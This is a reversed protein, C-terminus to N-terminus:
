EDEDEDTGDARWVDYQCDHLSMEAEDAEICKQEAHAANEAECEFRLELTKIVVYKHRRGRLVKPHADNM